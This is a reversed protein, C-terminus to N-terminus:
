NSFFLNIDTTSKGDQIEIERSVTQPLTDKVVPSVSTTAVISYKGNPIGTMTFVGARDTEAFFPTGIFYVVIPTLEKIGSGRYLATGRISGSNKLSDSVTDKKGANIELNMFAVSKQLSRDIVFVNLIGTDTVFKIGADSSVISVSDFYNTKRIPNYDAKAIIIDAAIIQDAKIHVTVVTDCMSVTANITESAGGTNQVTDNGSCGYIILVSLVIILRIFLRM